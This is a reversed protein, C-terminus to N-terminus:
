GYGGVSTKLSQAVGGRWGEKLINQKQLGVERQLLIRRPTPIPIKQFWVNTKIHNNCTLFNHHSFIDKLDPFLQTM